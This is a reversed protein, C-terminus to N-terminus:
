KLASNGISTIGKKTFADKLESLAANAAINGYRRADADSMTGSHSINVEITPSFEVSASGGHTVPLLDKATPLLSFGKFMNNLSSTNIPSGLRESLIQAFDVLKYLGQERKEDLVLEGDKLIAMVEDKKLTSDGVVGGDHFIGGYSKYLEDNGIWWVGNGDKWVKQGSLSQIYSAMRENARELETRKSESATAWAQSNRYMAQTIYDVAEWTGISYLPDEQGDVYWLGDRLEVSQGYLKSLQSAYRSNSNSLARQESESSIFWDLSNQRMQSKIAQPDGYTSSDGVTLSGDPSEGKAVKNAAEVFSGYDQVAKSALEWAAVIENEITSGAEYNWDIIDDYLDDWDDNIRDIALQYIKETSSISDELEAIEDQKEEEYADYMDDLMEQQKEVSYDAQYDSLDGQLKALEEELAVREAQAERSDDLSLQNIQSQLKAIKSVKDAVEDEYDKEKKTEEIAEKKLDIIERYKDIRDEIAEIEQNVEYEVLEMTLDLITDLADEMADYGSNSEETGLKISNVANDALDRLRNINQLANKYQDGDLNLLELNSYVLGWTADSAKDTASVLRGLETVNGESLALRLREVYSLATDVALQKTKAAIVAEIKDKNVVLMGNADKLYNMYEAGYEAIATLSDVSISGSEAYEAAADKLTDYVGKITDISDIANEVITEFHKEMVDAIEEQYDWWLKSLESIEKSTDDYGLNRYYEAQDHVSEQMQKYMGVISSTYNSAKSYEGNRMANDYQSQMIDISNEMQERNDEYGNAIVDAIEEQYDWWQKQMKQIYESNDDLGKARYAEAQENVAKQMQRYVAIIESDSASHKEMLFIQHEYDTIIDDIQEQMEKLADEMAEEASKTDINVDEVEVDASAKITTDAKYVNTKTNTAKPTATTQVIGEKYFKGTGSSFATGEVLATGRRNGSTIKGKEFIQRTQEANFIIDDKRYAFFEAGDDGITFFRGDRVILEQGLEGGLAIGSKRAGWKGRAFATGKSFATGRAQGGGSWKITGTATFHTKVNTTDNGWKVTGGASHSQAIWNDVLLTDNDWKVTGSANHEAAQYNEILTADLGAKVMVEPTLAAISASITEASTTDIGLSALIEPSLAQISSIASNVNTQAETTDVGIATDVELKNYNTQFTQLASIVKAIDSEANATNVSMVAPKNLEQKRQILGALIVQAEQAGALSLNVTGDENKFKGLLNTAEEIQKNIDDINSSNLNFDIKTEGLEKLKENAEVFKDELLGLDSLVSDLDIEFGYDSLKRLISQVAEVSIGLKDAIEQDNGTGFDIEWSGDENMHAWESNLKSVDSLFRQCGEQGDTFYRTMLPYGNEFAKVVDEIGWNSIDFNTMLQAAARFENTGVLGEDYLKKINELSGALNDYMDGEEGGSQADIWKQYASTLGEYQAALIATQEIQSGLQNQEAILKARETTDACNAIKETLENYDEVQEELATNLYTDNVAEYQAELERLADANLHVGNATKEFLEAPNFGALEGYRSTVNKIMDATLGTASVSGQMASQLSEIGSTEGEVDFKITGAKVDNIAEVKARLIDLAESDNKLGRLENQWQELTWSATDKNISIDYVIEKDEASLNDIWDNFETIKDGDSEFAKKFDDKITKMNDTTKANLESQWQTYYSNYKELSGLYGDVMTAVQDNSLIGDQIAQKITSDSAIEDILKQRYKVYDDYTKVDSGTGVKSETLKNLFSQATELQKAYESDKGFLETRVDVLENWLQTNTFYIDKNNELASIAEDLAKKKDGLSLNEDFTLLSYYDEALGILDYTNWAVEAKGYGKSKWLDNIIEIGKNREKDEGWFDIAIENNGMFMDDVWTGKHHVASNTSKASDLYAKRYESVTQGLEIDRIQNLKSIQEDLKGNVLDLGGAQDGVLATIQSQISLIESRTSSDQTESSALEKYRAILTTLTNTEEAQKQATDRSNDALEKAKEAAKEQRNILNDLGTIIGQIALSVGMSILMNMAVNLATVGVAAAKAGIGLSKTKNGFDDITKSGSAISVAAKRTNDSMGSIHEKYAQIKPVGSNIANNFNTLAKFDINRTSKFDTILQKFSKGFVQLKNGSMSFIGANKGLASLALTIAGITTPLPGAIEVVGNLVNLLGTLGDIAGGLFGDSIFLKSTEQFTSSLKNLKGQLSDLFKENEAAASGASDLSTKLANEAVSFNELLAAVVNSNRKGGVLELINAQTIDTLDGWVQSLEQLIQYTSKFTNEDIQIDVKNGTLALIEDRLESVSNAMGDTSEGAEEAETKAARLFMSVTKLTTGVKQPDQVITNAATALAITEDITNGAAKMAAASRLLAEGIGESSIAYRNGVENFKDVISMAEEPVINFAQMTSIISESATNIDAIDGVNKYIIAADSLLEADEIKYGLRAFDASARVTDSLTAGLQKARSTARDLFKDYTADSEDTVKKLETMASNLEIVNNTMEKITRVGAMIVQTISLWTGFKASLASIRDSWSQTAEGASKIAGSASSVGSKISAMRTKFDEASVSGDRLQQQLTRLENAYTGLDSYAGSSKGSKAATWREQRHTVQSLLTDVQKLANYYETTGAKLMRTDAATGKLKSGMSQAANAADRAHKAVNAMDAAASKAGSFNGTAAVAPKVNTSKGLNAIQNKFEAIASNDIELGVKIKPPNGNLQSILGSIDKQMQGYSLGTDIGVVLNFDAM